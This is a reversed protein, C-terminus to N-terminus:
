CTEELPLTLTITSGINEENQIHLGYEKGYLLQIRKQVNSLGIHSSRKNEQMSQLVTELAEKTFGGGNDSICIHLMQNQATIDVQIHINEKSQLGYKVSNEIMPQMILKPIHTQNPALNRISYSLREGFRFQLIKLYNETYVLDQSLLVFDAEDAISYRLLQSLRQVMEEAAAPNLRVMFRINELTNFLFHPNFESELQKIKAEQTEKTIEINKHMLAQISDVMENYTQVIVSFEDQSQINLKALGHNKSAQLANVIEYIIKTKKSAFSKSSQLIILIFVVFLLVSMYITRTFNAYIEELSAFIHLTLDFGLGQSLTYYYKGEVKINSQAPLKRMKGHEAIFTNQNSVLVSQYQDCIQLTYKPQMLNSFTSADFVLVLSNGQPSTCYMYYQAEHQNEYSFLSLFHGQASARHKPLKLALNELTKQKQSAQTQTSFLLEHKQNLIYIQPKLYQANKFNYLNQNIEARYNKNRVYFPIDTSHIFQEAFAHSKQLLSQSQMALIHLKNATNKKINHLFIFYFLFLLFAILILFLIISHQILQNRLEDKFKLKVNKSM